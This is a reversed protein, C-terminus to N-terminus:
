LPSSLLSCPFFVNEMEEEEEEREGEKNLPGGAVNSEWIVEWPFFLFPITAAHPYSPFRM